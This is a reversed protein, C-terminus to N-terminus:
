AHARENHTLLMDAAKEAIMIVPANTNGSVLVPMVSADVVRLGDLGRVRLTPDVVADEDTGMRCTGAFHFTTTATRRCFEALHEESEAEPGPTLEQAILSRLPETQALKRVLGIGWVLRQLDRPDDLFNPDISPLVDPEPSRLHVTGRSKGALDQVGLNFGSFSDLKSRDAGTSLRIMLLQMDPRELMPDTKIFGGAVFPTQALPGRRGMAYALGMRVRRLLNNYEDNFTVPRSARFTPSVKVHDQLNTGVHPRELHVDIGFKRLIAPDGIGSLELLHPTGVSGASLIVERRANATVSQGNKRYVIGTARKQEIVVHAVTADSVVTLNPRNRVPHLYGTAASCRKGKAITVQYYGVGEQERGNFDANRSIQMRGAADIFAEALRDQPQPSVALPGGKGHFPGDDRRLFNEARKFYPLVDDYSWGTNGLAQWNDYDQRQGRVYLLGNVSSSGGIVRGYPFAIERGNLSDQPDGVFPWTYGKRAFMKGFGMPIHIWPNRDEGGAEVLLVRYQGSASLRNALVCGASGAGVIIFDFADSSAGSM